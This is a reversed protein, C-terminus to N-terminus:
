LPFINKINEVAKLLNELSVKENCIADMFANDLEDLLKKDPNSYKEKLSKYVEEYTTRTKRQAEYNYLYDDNLSINKVVIETDERYSLLDRLVPVHHCAELLQKTGATKNEFIVVQLAENLARFEETAKETEKISDEPMEELFIPSLDRGKVFKENFLWSDMWDWLELPSVFPSTEMNKRCIVFFMKNRCCYILIAEFIFFQRLFEKGYSSYKGQLQKILRDSYASCDAAKGIEIDGKNVLNVFHKISDEALRTIIGAQKITNEQHVEHQQAAKGLLWLGFCALGSVLAGGTFSLLNIPTAAAAGEEKKSYVKM